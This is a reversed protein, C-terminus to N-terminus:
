EGFILKIALMFLLGLIFFTFSEMSRKVDEEKHLEPILDSSAIYLFGGAAFPLLYVVSEAESFIYYGLIGGVIATIASLLNFLLAKIKDFGGYVLVGFDGLEQPVEHSIVAITTVFGLRIEIIFAAAIIVGDIFNHVGDGMLNLYAFPHIPCSKEHCHHWFIIRELLFFVTFGALLILSADLADIEEVSEPFLHLFAGGMLAGAAFAVLILVIRNLFKEDSLVLTIIGVLSLLSVIITSLIIWLLVSL